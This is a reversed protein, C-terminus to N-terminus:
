KITITDGIQISGYQEETVKVKKTRRGGSIKVYWKEPTVSTEPLSTHGYQRYRTVTVPAQYEKDTCIGTVTSCASFLLMFLTIIVKRKM